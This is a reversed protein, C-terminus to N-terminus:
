CIIRHLACRRADLLHRSPDAAREGQTAEPCDTGANHSGCASSRATFATETAFPMQMRKMVMVAGGEGPTLGSTGAPSTHVNWRASATGSVCFIWHSHFVAPYAPDLRPMIDAKGTLLADQSACVPCVRVLTSATTSLDSASSRRWM